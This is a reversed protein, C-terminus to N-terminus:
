VEPIKKNVILKYYRKVYRNLPLFNDDLYKRKIKTLKALKETKFLQDMEYGNFPGDVELREPHQVLWIKELPSESISSFVPHLSRNRFIDKILVTTMKVRTLNSCFTLSSQVSDTNSIRTSEEIKLKQLFIPELIDSSLYKSLNSSIKIM